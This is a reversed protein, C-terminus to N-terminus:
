LSKIRDLLAAHQARVLEDVSRARAKLDILATEVAALAGHIPGAPTASIAQALTESLRQTEEAVFQEARGPEAATLEDTAAAPRADKAPRGM